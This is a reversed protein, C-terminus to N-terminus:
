SPQRVLSGLSATRVIGVSRSRIPSKELDSFRDPPSRVIKSGVVVTRFTAVLVAVRVGNGLLMMGAVRMSGVARRIMCSKHPGFLGPSSADPDLLKLAEYAHGM